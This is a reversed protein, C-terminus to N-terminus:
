MKIAIHVVYRVYGFYVRSFYIDFKKDEVMLKRPNFFSLRFTYIMYVDSNLTESYCSFCRRRKM